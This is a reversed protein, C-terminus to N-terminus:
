DQVETIPLGRISQLRLVARGDTGVRGLKRLLYGDVYRTHWNSVAYGREDVEQQRENRCRGCRQFITYVGPQHTVTLPRWAHGFVRCNVQGETWNVAANRVDEPAAWDTM